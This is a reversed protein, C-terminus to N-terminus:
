IEFKLSKNWLIVKILTGKGVNTKLEFEDALRRSGSLGLGMGGGTTYGGAMVKSIDPIGPGQDEFILQLGEQGSKSIVSLQVSGTNAYKLINRTLESAVTVVKTQNTMSFKLEIACERVAKRVKVIDHEVTILFTESKIIHM